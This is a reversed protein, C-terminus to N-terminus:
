AIGAVNVITQKGYITTGGDPSFFQYVSRANTTVTPASGGSWTVGTWSVTYAGANAIELYWESAYTSIMGTVNWSLTANGSLVIKQYGSGVGSSSTTNQNAPVLAVTGNVGTTYAGAYTTGANIYSASSKQLQEPYSTLAM